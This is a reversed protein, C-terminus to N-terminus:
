LLIFQRACNFRCTCLLLFTATEVGSETM